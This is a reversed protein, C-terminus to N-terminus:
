DGGGDKTPRNQVFKAWAEDPSDLEQQVAKRVWTQEEPVIYEHPYCAQSPTLDEPFYQRLGEVGIVITKGDFDDLQVVFFYACSDKLFDLLSPAQYMLIPLLVMLLRVAFQNVAFSCFHLFALHISSPERVTVENGDMRMYVTGSWLRAHNLLNDAWNSISNGSRAVAGIYQLGSTFVFLFFNWRKMTEYSVPPETTTTVTTTTVTAPTESVLPVMLSQSSVITQALVAMFVSQFIITVVIRALPVFPDEYVSSATASVVAGKAFRCTWDDGGDKKVELRMGNYMVNQPGGLLPSEADDIGFNKNADSVDGGITGEVFVEEEDEEPLAVMIGDSFNAAQVYLSFAFVLWRCSYLLSIVVLIALLGKAGLAKAYSLYVLVAMTAFQSWAAFALAERSRFTNNQLKAEMNTASESYQYLACAKFTVAFLLVFVTYAVAVGLPVDEDWFGGKELPEAGYVGHMITNNFYSSTLIQHSLDEIVSPSLTPPLLAQSLPATDNEM